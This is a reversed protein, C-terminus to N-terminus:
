VQVLSESQIVLLDMELFVCTDGRTPMHRRTKATAKRYPPPKYGAATAKRECRAVGSSLMVGLRLM